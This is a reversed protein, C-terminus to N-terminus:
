MGVYQRALAPPGSSSPTGVLGRGFHHMWIRNVIVRAVLPHQESVLWRAILLTGVVSRGWRYDLYADSVAGGHGKRYLRAITRQYVEDARRGIALGLQARENRQQESDTLPM